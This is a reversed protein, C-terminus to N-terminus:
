RRRVVKRATIILGIFSVIGVMLMTSRISQQATTLDTGSLSFSGVACIIAAIGFIVSLVLPVMRFRSENDRSDNSSYDSYSDRGRGKTPAGFNEPDFSSM